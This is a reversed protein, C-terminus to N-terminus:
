VEGVKAGEGFATDTITVLAASGVLVALAVTAIVLPGVISIMKGDLTNAPATSLKGSATCPLPNTAPLPLAAEAMRILPAARPVVQAAVILQAVPSLGTSRADAAVSVMWTSFGPGFPASEFGTGNTIMGNSMETAASESVAPWGAAADMRSTTGSGVVAAADAGILTSVM